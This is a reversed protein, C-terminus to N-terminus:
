DGRNIKLIASMEIAGSRIRKFKLLRFANEHPAIGRCLNKETQRSTNAKLHSHDKKFSDIRLMLNFVRRGRSQVVRSHKKAKPHM